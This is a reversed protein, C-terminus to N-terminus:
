ATAVKASKRWEWYGKGALILFLFYLTTILYLSKYFYVGIAVVDVAIWFLWNELKKKSILWQAVLSTAAIFADPYPAAADTYTAMTYGWAATGLMAVIVWVGFESKTIQTVPLKENERNGRTWYYWGYLQLFVYIIHLIMDSYLKAQYFVFIFLLVQVLGIPWSWINERVYLWVCIFGLITGLIELSSMHLQYINKCDPECILYILLNIQIPCIGDFHNSRSCPQRPLSVTYMSSRLSIANACSPAFGAFVPMEDSNRLCQKKSKRL